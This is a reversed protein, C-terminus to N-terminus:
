ALKLSELQLLMIHLVHLLVATRCHEQGTRTIGPNVTKSLLGPTTAQLGPPLSTDQDAASGM